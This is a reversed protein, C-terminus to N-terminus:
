IEVKNSVVSINPIRLFVDCGHGPISKIELSGGFYKAYIRSMPLGFGLGAMPGGTSQQLSLRAQTSFVTDNDDDLKDVSTWSYEWVKHLDLLQSISILAGSPAIGGGEDRIRITVDQDGQAISIILDPLETRGTKQGYEVTARMANKLLEMFIYELHVTVYALTTDGHGNIIVQPSMGYNLECIDSVYTAMTKLLSAPCVQTNVIGVWDKTCTQLSLFHEAMVRIGIRAHIMGDLFEQASDKTMYKGCESFGKALEPIVHQHSETLEALKNALLSSSESDM